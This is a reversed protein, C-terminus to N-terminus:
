NSATELLGTEDRKNIDVLVPYIITKETREVQRNDSGTWNHWHNLQALAGTPNRKGSAIADALSAENKQKLDSSLRTLDEAHDYFFDKGIACFASVGWMTFVKGYINCLYEYLTIVQVVKDIDYRNNNTPAASGIEHLTTDKLLNTGKFLHKGIYMSCAQWIPQEAKRLGDMGDIANTACFDIILNNVRNEIGAMDLPTNQTLEEGQVRELTDASGSVPKESTNINSQKATERGKVSRKRSGATMKDAIITQPSEQGDSPMLYPELVELADDFSTKSIIAKRLGDRDAEPVEELINTFTKIQERTFDKFMDRGIFFRCGIM